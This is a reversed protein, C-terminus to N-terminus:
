SCQNGQFVDYLYGGWRKHAHEDPHGGKLFGIDNFTQTFRGFSSFFYIGMFQDNPVRDFINYIDSIFKLVAYKQTNNKYKDARDSRTISKIENVMQDHFTGQIVKINLQKCVNYITEIYNYLHMTATELNFMNSYYEKIAQRRRKYYGRELESAYPSMQMFNDYYEFNEERFKCFDEDDCFYETRQLASWQIAVHTIKGPEAGFIYNLTTRFIRDNSSGNAAICEYDADLHEALFKSYHQNKPDTLEDGLCFSCGNTLLFNKKQLITM